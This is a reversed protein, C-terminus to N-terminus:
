DKIAFTIYGTHGRMPLQYRLADSSSNKLSGRVLGWPKYLVEFTRIQSFKFNILEHNNKSVQEICPSFIAVKSGGSLISYVHKVVLWPSPLDLFVANIEISDLNIHPSIFGNKCVDQHHCYINEINYRKFDNIAELYRNKDYEYTFVKGGPLVSRSLSTTLSGSGTGAEIVNKGPSLDLLICVLSIDAQYLIQTRHNLSISILEPTPKLVVMWKTGSTNMIRAGYTKGIINNHLYLGHKTQLKDNNNLIVQIVTEYGGFLVVLDGEKCKEYKRLSLREEVQISQTLNNNEELAEDKSM